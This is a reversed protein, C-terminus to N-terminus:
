QEQPKWFIRRQNPDVRYSQEQMLKKSQEPDFNRNLQNRLNDVRIETEQVARRVESLKAQQIEQYPLLKILATSAAISLILNMGIKLSAEIAIGQHVRKTEYRRSPRPSQKLPQRIKEPKMTPCLLLVVLM